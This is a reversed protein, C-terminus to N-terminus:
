KKTNKFGGNHHQNLYLIFNQWSLIGKKLKKRLEQKKKILEDYEPNEFTVNITKM